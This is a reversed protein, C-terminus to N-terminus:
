RKSNILKSEVLLNKIAQAAEAYTLNSKPSITTTTNGNFVHASLVEKVYSTAWHSVMSYDVYSQYRNADSGNLKTVKMARQYMTMAEERTIKANPRFTGDPYGTIFGYENAILIALTREGDAQVDSFKNVHASGERYLGLARVIYEAFDARTIAKNPEFTDANFVVMRSAMDNVADKSWHNAVSNVVVTNAIVSYTSNTLSSIKAYWKGDKQYVDTPVHNYTGDPNFVIGTTIKSPDVGAPIEMVREVYNDFKNVEVQSTTGDAKTARAFVEFAVPPFVLDAGNKKAIENYKEVVDNGIDTIKVEVKIDVLKNEQVGFYTMMNKVDFERAPIVYEVLDKKVSVTFSSDELKKIIDANLEVKAIDASVNSVQFQIVNQQNDSPTLKNAEILKDISTTDAKVTAITQGQSVVSTETSINAKTGNVSGQAVPQQPTIEPTNNSNGTNTSPRILQSIANTIATTKAMVHANTTEPLALATTLNAWSGATYEAQVLAAAALIKNDLATQNATTVLNAIADTIATTKAVVETNTTEPLALATTLNAWSGATYDAQVLVAAATKQNDLATQNATTVLNAIANTIATAKAVIEANTAETLALATTLNGWSGATYDVQVLAAAATKASDLTTQNATTVLNAIANAIATTKAMIEANTTEPLAVATTLSVWSGETYDVQVLAAAATKANDLATQNALSILNNKSTSISTVAGDVQGQTADANNEITKASDLANSYATWSEDTYDSQTLKLTTRASGDSYELDTAVTLAAKDAEYIGNFDIETLTAEETMPNSVGVAQDLYIFLNAYGTDPKLVQLDAPDTILIENTGEVADQQKILAGNTFIAAYTRTGDFSVMKIKSGAVVGTLKFSISFAKPKTTGSTIEMHIGRGSVTTGSPRKFTKMSYTTIIQNFSDKYAVYIPYGPVSQLQLDYAYGQANIDNLPAAFVQGMPWLTLLLALVIALSLSKRKM